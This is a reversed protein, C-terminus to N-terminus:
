RKRRLLVITAGIGAALVAGIVGLIVPDVPAGSTGYSPQTGSTSQIVLSGMMSTPHFYCYYTFTGVGTAVFTVSTTTSFSSSVPEGSDPKQNANLDVFFEHSLGETSHLTITVTDGARVTLAPRPVMESASTFGWGQAQSGYLSFTVNAGRAPPAVGLLIGALLGMGILIGLLRKMAILM